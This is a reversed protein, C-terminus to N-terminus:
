EKFAVIYAMRALNGVIHTVHHTLLYRNCNYFECRGGALTFLVM